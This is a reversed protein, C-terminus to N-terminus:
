QCQGGSDNTVQCTPDNPDSKYVFMLWVFFLIILGIIIYRSWDPEQPGARKRASQKERWEMQAKNGTHIMESPRGALWDLDNDDPVYESM